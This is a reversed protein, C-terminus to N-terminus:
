VVTTVSLIQDPLSQGTTLEVALLVVAAVMAVRGLLIEMEGLVRTRMRAAPDLRRPLEFRSPMNNAQVAVDAITTAAQPQSSIINSKLAAAGSPSSLVVEMDGNRYFMATNQPPVDTAVDPMTERSRSVWGRVRSVPGMLSFSTTERPAMVALLSVFIALQKARIM